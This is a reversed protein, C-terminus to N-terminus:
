EEKISCNTKFGFTVEWAKVMVKALLERHEEIVSFSDHCQLCVISRQLFYDLVYSTVASGLYQLDGGISMFFKHSVCQHKVLLNTIIEEVRIVGFPVKGESELKDIDLNRSIHSNMALAAEQRSKTNLMVIMATKTLGRLLVKDYKPMDSSIDYPDGYLEHGECSYLLAPEFGAYDYTMIKEGDITVKAREEKSLNQFGNMYFRGGKTTTENLIQTLQVDLRYDNNTMVESDLSLKNLDQLLKKTEKALPTLTFPKAKKNKDRLVMVNNNVDFARCEIGLANYLEMFGKDMAIYSCDRTVHREGRSIKIDIINGGTYSQILDGEILMDVLAMTYRYSIKHPSKRGNIIIDQQYVEKRRSITFTKSNKLVSAHANCLFCDVARKVSKVLKVSSNSIELKTCLATTLTNSLPLLGKNM